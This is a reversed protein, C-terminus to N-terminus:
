KEKNIIEKKGRRSKLSHTKPQPLNQYIAVRVFHIYLEFILYPLPYIM